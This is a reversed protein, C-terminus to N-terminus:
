RQGGVMSTVLLECRGGRGWNNRQKFRFSVDTCLLYSFHQESLRREGRAQATYYIEKRQGEGGGGEKSLPTALGSSHLKQLQAQPRSRWDCGWMRKKDRDHSVRV